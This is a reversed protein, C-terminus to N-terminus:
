RLSSDARDSRRCQHVISRGGHAVIDWTRVCPTVAADRTSLLSLYPVIPRKHRAARLGLNPAAPGLANRRRPPRLLDTSRRELTDTCTPLPVRAPCWSQGEKSSADSPASPLIRM